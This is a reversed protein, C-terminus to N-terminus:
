VTESQKQLTKYQQQLFADIDDKKFRYGRGIKAAPIIGDRAMKRVTFASLGFYTAADAVDMLKGTDM